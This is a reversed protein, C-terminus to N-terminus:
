YSLTGVGEKASKYPAGGMCPHKKVLSDYQSFLVANNIAVNHKVLRIFFFFFLLLARLANDNALLGGFGLIRTLVGDFLFDLCM